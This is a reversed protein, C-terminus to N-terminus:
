ISYGFVIEPIIGTEQTEQFLTESYDFEAVIKYDSVFSRGFDQIMLSVGHKKLLHQLEETFEKQKQTQLEQTTM